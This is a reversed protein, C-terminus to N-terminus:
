QVQIAVFTMNDPSGLQTYTDFVNMAFSNVDTSTLYKELLDTESMLDSAGDSCLIFVDEKSVTLEVMSPELILEEKSIGLYQTLKGKVKKTSSYGETHDISIQKIVGKHILYCRSDGLHCLFAKRGKLVLMTSTTGLNSRHEKCQSYVHENMSSILHDLAFRVKGFRIIFDQLQDIFVTSAIDSALEGMSHGGMGDFVGFYQLDNNIVVSFDEHNKAKHNKREMVVYNDENNARCSGVDTILVVKTKM